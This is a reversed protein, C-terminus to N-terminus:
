SRNIWAGARFARSGEESNLILLLCARLRPPDQFIARQTAGTPFNRFDAESRPRIFAPVFRPYRTLKRNGRQEPNIRKVPMTEGWDQM